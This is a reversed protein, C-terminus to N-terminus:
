ISCSTRMSTAGEMAFLLDSPLCSVGDGGVGKALKEANEKEEAETANEWTSLFRELKAEVAELSQDMQEQGQQGIASPDVSFVARTGGPVPSTEVRMPWPSSSSGSALESAKVTAGSLPVGAASLTAAAVAPGGLHQQSHGQMLAAATTPPPPPLSATVAATPLTPPMPPPLYGVPVSSTAPQPAGPLLWNSADGAGSDGGPLLGLHNYISHSYPHAGGLVPTHALVSREMRGLNQLYQPLELYPTTGIPSTVTGGLIGMGPSSYTTHAGTFAAAVNAPSGHIAPNYVANYAASQTAQLTHAAHWAPLGFPHARSSAEHGAAHVLGLSTEALGTVGARALLMGDAERHPQGTALIAPSAHGHHFETLLPAPPVPAPSIMSSVGLSTAMPAPPMPHTRHAALSLLELDALTLKSPQVPAQINFPLGAALASASGISTAASAAATTAAAAAAPQMSLSPHTGFMHLDPHDPMAAPSTHMQALETYDELGPPARLLDSSSAQVPAPSGQWNRPEAPLGPENTPLTLLLPQPVTVLAAYAVGNEAANNTQALCGPPLRSIAQIDLDIVPVSNTNIAKDCLRVLLELQGPIDAPPRSGGLIAIPPIHLLGSQLAIGQSKLVSTYDTKWLPAAFRLADAFTWLVPHRVIQVPLLRQDPCRETLRNVLNTFLPLHDLLPRNVRRDAVVNACVTSPKRRDGFPHEGTLLYFIVVGLQWSDIRFKDLKAGGEGTSVCRHVEPPYWMAWADDSKGRWGSEFLRLARIKGMFDGMHLEGAADVNVTQPGLCLHAINEAHLAQVQTVLQRAWSAAMATLPWFTAAQKAVSGGMKNMSVGLTSAYEPLALVTTAVTRRLVYAHESPNDGNNSQDTNSWHNSWHAIWRKAEKVVQAAIQSDGRSITMLKVQCRVERDLVRLTGTGSKAQFFGPRLIGGVLADGDGAAGSVIEKVCVRLDHQDGAYWWSDDDVASEASTQEPQSATPPANSDSSRSNVTNGGDGTSASAAQPQGNKTSSGRAGRSGRQGKKSNEMAAAKPTKCRTSAGQEEAYGSGSDLEVCPTGGTGGETRPGTNRAPASPKSVRATASRANVGGGSSGSTNGERARLEDNNHAYPCYYGSCTAGGPCPSTKYVAPHFLEEDRTHAFDCEAGKPCNDCNPCLRPAYTVKHPNRRPRDTHSYQCKEGFACSGTALLRECLKTRFKALGKESLVPPLAM